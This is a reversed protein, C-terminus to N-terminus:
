TVDYGQRALYVANRGEGEALCLVRGGAPLHRTAHRALFDNPETGYVFGAEAYREDWMLPTHCPPASGSLSKVVLAPVHAPAEDRRRQARPHQRACIWRLRHLTRRTISRLRQA